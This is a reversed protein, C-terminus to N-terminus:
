RRIRHGGHGRVPVRQGRGRGAAPGNRGAAIALADPLSLPLGLNRALLNGTGAPLVALPVGTGALGEACATVTGDGGSALVLDVAEAM